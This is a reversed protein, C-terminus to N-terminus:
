PLERLAKLTPAVKGGIGRWAASVAEGDCNWKSMKTNIAEEVGAMFKNLKETNAAWGYRVLLEARYKTLFEQKSSM